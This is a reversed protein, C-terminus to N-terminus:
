QQTRSQDRSEPIERFGSCFQALLYVLVPWIQLNHQGKAVMKQSYPSM